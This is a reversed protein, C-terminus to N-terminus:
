KFHGEIIYSSKFPDAPENSDSHNFGNIDDIFHSYNKVM